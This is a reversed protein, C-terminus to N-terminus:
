GSAGLGAQMVARRLPRLDHVLSLGALRAAQVAGDGSRCVRNFIDIASARLHVDRRRAAEFAALMAPTGLSDPEALRLLAGVDAMSTNLGQAGIPPLVHAAEALILARQGTLRDATQTVIPWIRRPSALTLHGLVGCSRALMEAEFGRPDMEMLAKARAGDNMWVVASAPGGAVDRMPVLTFAGGQNYIETSTEDHPHPHTVSFALAKQGYRRTAVGIGLATRVPSARGDAGIVLRARLRAGDSLRVLTEAQRTVMGAFGVGLRLDVGPLDAIVRSLLKRTLWNPLNWGFAEHGLDQPKFTRTGRPVPPWGQTDIVELARLPTAHPALAEWLGVEELLARSPHLYATSRLDSGEAEASDVPPMPDALCVSFGKGGLAAAAVLGAIGGGSIFVDYQM